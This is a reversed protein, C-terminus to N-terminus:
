IQRGQIIVCSVCGIITFFPITFVIMHLVFVGIYELGLAFSYSDFPLYNTLLFAGIFSIANFLSISYLSFQINKKGIHPFLALFAGSTGFGLLALSVILFAFHYFQTVSFLRTLNIEYSLSAASLLFVAVLLNRPCGNEINPQNFIRELV